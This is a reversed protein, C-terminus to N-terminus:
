LFICITFIYLFLHLTIIKFKVKKGTDTVEPEKTAKNKDTIVTQTNAKIKEKNDKSEM